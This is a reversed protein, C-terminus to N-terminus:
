LQPKNKFPMESLRYIVPKWFFHQGVHRRTLLLQPVLISGQLVEVNQPDDIGQATSDCLNVHEQLAWRWILM